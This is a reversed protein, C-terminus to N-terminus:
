EDVRLALALLDSSIKLGASQAAEQSIQFRVRHDVVLLNIMSAPPMGRASETIVLMGRAPRQVPLRHKERRGGEGIFLVQADTAERLSAIRRVVVQRNLLPRSAVLLQLSAAVEDAGLVAVTFRAPLADEPWRVYGVFRFIFAAKVADESYSEQAHLRAPALGSCLACLVLISRWLWFTSGTSHAPQQM